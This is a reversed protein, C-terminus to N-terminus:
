TKKKECCLCKYVCTPSTLPSLSASLSDQDFIIGFLLQALYFHPISFDLAQLILPLWNSDPSM